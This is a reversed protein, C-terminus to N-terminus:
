GGNGLRMFDKMFQCFLGIFQGKPSNYYVTKGDVTKTLVLRVETMQSIRRHIVDEFSYRKSLEDPTLRGKPSIMTEVLFRLTPSREFSFYLQMYGVWVLIFVLTTYLAFIYMRADEGEPMLFELKLLFPILLPTCLIMVMTLTKTRSKIPRLRFPIFSLVIFILYVAVSSM